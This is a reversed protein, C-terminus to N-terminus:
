VPPCDEWKHVEGSEWGPEPFEGHLYVAGECFAFLTSLAKGLLQRGSATQLGLHHARILYQSVFDIDEQRLTGGFQEVTSVPYKVEAYDYREKRLWVLVHRTVLTRKLSKKPKFTADGREENLSPLLSDKRTETESFSTGVKVHHIVVVSSPNEQQLRKLITLIVSSSIEDTEDFEPM